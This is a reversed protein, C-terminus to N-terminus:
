TVIIIWSVTVAFQPCLFCGTLDQNQGSYLAQCPNPCALGQITSLVLVLAAAKQASLKCHTYAFPAHQSLRFDYISYLLAYYKTEEIAQVM